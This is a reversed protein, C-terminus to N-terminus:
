SKLFTPGCLIGDAYVLFKHKCIYKASFVSNVEWHQLRIKIPVLDTLGDM